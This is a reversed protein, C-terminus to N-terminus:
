PQIRRTWDLKGFALESDARREILQFQRRLFQGAAGCQQQSADCRGVFTGAGDFLPPRALSAVLPFDRRHIEGNVFFFLKDKVIAGGLSAGGQYRKESPNM